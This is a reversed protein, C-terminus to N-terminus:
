FWGRDMLLSCVRRMLQDDVALSSCLNVAALPWPQEARQLSLAEGGGEALNRLVAPSAMGLTEILPLQMINHQATLFKPGIFQPPFGGANLM